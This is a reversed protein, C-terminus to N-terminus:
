FREPPPGPTRRSVVQRPLPQVISSLKACIESRHSSMSTLEFLVCVLLPVSYTM